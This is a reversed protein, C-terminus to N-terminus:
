KENRVKDLIEQYTNLKTKLLILEIDEATIGNAFIESKLEEIKVGLYNILEEKEQKLNINEKELFESHSQLYSAERYVDDIAEEILSKNM